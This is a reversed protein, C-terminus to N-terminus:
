DNLSDLFERCKVSVSPENSNAPPSWRVVAQAVLIWEMGSCSCM